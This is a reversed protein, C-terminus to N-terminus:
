PAPAMLRRPRSDRIPVIPREERVVFLGDILVSWDVHAWDGADLVRSPRSGAARLSASGLYAYAGSQNTFALAELSDAPAADLTRPQANRGFSGAYASFGITTVADGLQRRLSQGLTDVSDDPGLRGKRAHVSATWVIVRSGAPLRDLYWLLNETMGQSREARARNSDLMNLHRRYSRAMIPVTSAAEGAVGLDSLAALVRDICDSLRQVEADDFPADANYEWRNHRGFVQSCHADNPAALVTGLEAPLSRQAYLATSSGVQVDIGGLLVRGILAQEHLKQLLPDFEAATSWLAGVADSLHEVSASGTALAREYDLFDYIGSEFLVASYGCEQVLRQVVEAKAGISAASGHSREEGLFVVSARTLDEQPRQCLDAVLRGIPDAAPPASAFHATCGFLFPLLILLLLPACRPDTLTRSISREVPSAM